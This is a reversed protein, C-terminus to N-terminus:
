DWFDAVDASVEASLQPDQDTPEASFTQTRRSRCNADLLADLIATSRRPSSPLDFWETDTETDAAYAETPPALTAISM